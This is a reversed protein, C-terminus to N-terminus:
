RMKSGNPDYLPKTVVSAQHFKGLIEVALETDEDILEVPLYTMALSKSVSHGYGGSTVYGVCKGNHMVAEDGSVDTETEIELVSM